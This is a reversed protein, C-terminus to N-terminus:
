RGLNHRNGCFSLMMGLFKSNGYSIKVTFIMHAVREIKFIRNFVSQGVPSVAASILASDQKHAIGEEVGTEPGVKIRSVATFVSICHAYASGRGSIPLVHYFSKHEGHLGFGNYYM